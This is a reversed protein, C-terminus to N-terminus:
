RAAVLEEGQRVDGRRGQAAEHRRQEEPDQDGRLGRWGARHVGRDDGDRERLHPRVQDERVHVVEWHAVCIQYSTPVSRGRLSRAGGPLLNKMRISWTM